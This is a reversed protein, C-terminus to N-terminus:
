GFQSQTDIEGRELYFPYVMNFYTNVSRVFYNININLRNELTEDPEVHVEKLIIRPEWRNLAEEIYYKALSQTRSNNPAFVLEGLDCGFDPRM